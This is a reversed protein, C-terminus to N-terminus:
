DGAPTVGQDPSRDRLRMRRKTERVERVATVGDYGALAVNAAVGVPGLRGVLRPKLVSMMATGAVRKSLQRNVTTFALDKLGERAITGAQQRVAEGVPVGADVADAIAASTTVIDAASMAKSSVRDAADLVRGGAPTGGDLATGLEEIMEQSYGFATRSHEGPGPATADTVIDLLGAATDRDTTAYQVAAWIMASGTVQVGEGLLGVARHLAEVVEASSSVVEHGAVPDVGEAPVPLVAGPLRQLYLGTDILERGAEILDREVVELAAGTREADHGPLTYGDITAGLERMKAATAGDHAVLKLRLDVADDYLASFERIHHLYEEQVVLLEGAIRYYLTMDGTGVAQLLRFGLAEYERGRTEWGDRHLQAQERMVGMRERRDALTADYDGLMDRMSEVHWVMLTSGHAYDQTIRAHLAEAADGLFSKVSHGALDGAVTRAEDALLDWFALESRIVGPRGGIHFPYDAYTEWPQPLPAELQFGAVM